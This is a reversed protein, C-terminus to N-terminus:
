SVCRRLDEEFGPYSTAVSDWGAVVTPGSADLGAIALAMAVRHDGCANVEGGSLPRGGNGRVVLGDPRGEVAVGVAALAAVMSAVRDSEKVRLEAADAFTTIGEARAAAVALIPIEDILAPVEAGHVTTGRLSASRVRVDARHDDGPHRELAIDAGMRVLVDLFAARGPGVYVDELTLDSGPVITAAIAWFAAQSPDAAVDIDLPALDCRRVTVVGPAVSIDAGCAALLEETHMRTPVDERVVTDGEAALGALLVATKVQASAVPLRYDIGKLQGGRVVLPPLRGQDRGDIRAGMLRLPEAVRGMPRRGISADGQLVTLWDFAASWGALLRMATGSNGVDIMAAPEHLRARGGDITVVRPDTAGSSAVQAGCAAVAALTRAVDDGDSLGRLVSLGDALAALLVARHSISKDGPVRLRGRLPGAGGPLVLQTM